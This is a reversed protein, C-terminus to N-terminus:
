EDVAANKCRRERQILKDIRQLVEPTYIEEPPIGSLELYLECSMLSHPVAASRPRHECRRLLIREM